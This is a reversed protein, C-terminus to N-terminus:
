RRKTIKTITHEQKTGSFISPFSNEFTEIGLKKTQLKSNLQNNISVKIESQGASFSFKPITSSIWRVINRTIFKIPPCIPICVGFPILPLYINSRFNRFDQIKYVTRMVTKLIIIYIHLLILINFIFNLIINSPQKLLKKKTKSSFFFFM